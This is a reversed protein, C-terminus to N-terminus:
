LWIFNSRSTANSAFESDIITETANTPSDKETPKELLESAVPPQTTSSVEPTPEAVPAPPPAAAEPTPEEAAQTTSPVVVPEVPVATTSAEPAPDDVFDM